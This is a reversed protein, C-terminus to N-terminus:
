DVNTFDITLNGEYFACVFFRFTSRIRRVSGRDSLLAQNSRHLSRLSPSSTKINPSQCIVILCRNNSCCMSRGERKKIVGKELMRMSLSGKRGRAVGGVNRRLLEERKEWGRVFIRYSDELEWM